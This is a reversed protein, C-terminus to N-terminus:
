ILAAAAIFGLFQIGICATVALGAVTGVVSVWKPRKGRVCNRIALVTGVLALPGAGLLVIEGLLESQGLLGNAESEWVAASVVVLAVSIWPTLRSAKM